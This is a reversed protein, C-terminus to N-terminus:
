ENKDDMENKVSTGLQIETTNKEEVFEELYHTKFVFNLQTDTYLAGVEESLMVALNRYQREKSMSKCANKVIGIQFLETHCCSEHQAYSPFVYDTTEGM